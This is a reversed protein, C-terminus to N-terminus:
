ARRQFRVRRRTRISPSNTPVISITGDEELVGMKVESIGSLGHERIAADVEDLTVGERRLRGTIVQGDKIILSPAPTFLRHFLRFRDARAIAVNLLVLTGIIVLGGGLSADPGTMAPQVANAVLLILVLDFLTMQGVERKGFIRLAFLLVLYIAVSRVVLQWPPVGFRFLSVGIM